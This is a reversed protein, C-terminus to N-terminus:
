REGTFRDLISKIENMRMQNMELELARAISPFALDENKEVENRIDEKLVDAEIELKILEALLHKILNKRSESDSHFIIRINFQQDKDM